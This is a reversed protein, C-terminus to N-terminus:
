RDARRQRVVDDFLLIVHYICMLSMGIVIGATTWALPIDLAVSRIGEQTRAYLWGQYAVLLCFATNVIVAFRKLASVTKPSAKQLFFDVNIHAGDRTAVTSGIFTLWLYTMKTLEESWMLPRNLVYRFIVQSFVTVVMVALGVQTLTNLCQDFVRKWVRADM